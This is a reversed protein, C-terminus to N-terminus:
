KLLGQDALRQAAKLALEANLEVGAEQLAYGISNAAISVQNQSAVDEVNRLLVVDEVLYLTTEIGPAGGHKALAFTRIEELHSMDDKPTWYGYNRSERRGDGGDWSVVVVLKRTEESEDM